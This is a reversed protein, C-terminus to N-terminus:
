SAHSGRTTLAPSASELARAVPVPPAAAAERLKELAGTEIQRVREATIGLGAGIRRLTQPPQGLGYHGWLVSREREDLRDALDRVEEIEIRDLVQEYEKEAVPDAVM